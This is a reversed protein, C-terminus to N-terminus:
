DPEKIVSDMVVMTRERQDRNVQNYCFQDIVTILSHICKVAADNMKGCVNLFVFSM